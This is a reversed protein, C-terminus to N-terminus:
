SLKSLFEDVIKKYACDCERSYYSIGDEFGNLLNINASEPIARYVNRSHNRSEIKDIRKSEIYVSDIPFGFRMSFCDSMKKYGSRDIGEQPSILLSYDVALAQSIIYSKVGFGLALSESIHITTEDPFQVVLVDSRDICQIYNFYRNLQLVFHNLDTSTNKLDEFPLYHFGYITLNRSSVITSVKYGKLKLYSYVNFVAEDSNLGQTLKTIGFVACDVTCYPDSRALLLKSLSTENAYYDFKVRNQNSLDCCVEYDEKQLAQTCKIHKGSCIAVKIKSYLDRYDDSELIIVGDVENIAEIYDSTLKIQVPLEVLIKRTRPYIAVCVDVDNYVSSRNFVFSNDDTYPYMAYKMKGGGNM